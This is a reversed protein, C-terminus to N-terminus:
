TPDTTRHPPPPPYLLPTTASKKPDTFRSLPPPGPPAGAVGLLLSLSLATIYGKMRHNAEECLQHLPACQDCAREPRIAPVSPRASAAIRDVSVYRCAGKRRTLRSVLEKGRPVEVM